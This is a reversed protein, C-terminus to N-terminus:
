CGHDRGKILAWVDLGYHVAACALPQDRDRGEEFSNINKLLWEVSHTLARAGTSDYFYICPESSDTLGLNGGAYQFPPLVTVTAGTAPASM